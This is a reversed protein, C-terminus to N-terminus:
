SKESTQVDSSMQADRWGSPDAGHLINLCGRGNEGGPAVASSGIFELKVQGQGGDFVVSAPGFRARLGKGRAVIAGDRKNTLKRVQIM